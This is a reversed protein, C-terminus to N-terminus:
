LNIKLPIWRGIEEPILHTSCFHTYLSAIRAFVELATIRGVVPPSIVAAAERTKKVKKQGLDWVIEILAKYLLYICYLARFSM